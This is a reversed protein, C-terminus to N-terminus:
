SVTFNAFDNFSLAMENTANNINEIITSRASDIVGVKREKVKNMWWTLAAALITISTALDIGIQIKSLWM